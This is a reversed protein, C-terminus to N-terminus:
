SEELSNKGGREKKSYLLFSYIIEEKVGGFGM